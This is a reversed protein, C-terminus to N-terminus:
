LIDFVDEDCDCYIVGGQPHAFAYRSQNDPGNQANAETTVNEYGLIALELLAEDITLPQEEDDEYM